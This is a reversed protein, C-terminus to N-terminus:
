GEKQLIKAIIALVKGVHKMGEEDRMYSRSCAGSVTKRSPMVGVEMHFDSDSKHENEELMKSTLSDCAVDAWDGCKFPVSIDGKDLPRSGTSLPMMVDGMTVVLGTLFYKLDDM